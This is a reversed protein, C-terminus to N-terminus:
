VDGPAILQGMWYDTLLGTILFFRVARSTGRLEARLGRASLPYGLQEFLM